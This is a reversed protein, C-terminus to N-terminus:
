GTRGSTRREAESERVQVELEEEAIGQEDVEEHEHDEAELAEPGGPPWRRESIKAGLAECIEDELREAEEQSLSHDDIQVSVRESDKYLRITARVLKSTGDDLTARFEGRWTAVSETEHTVGGSEAIRALKKAMWEEVGVGVGFSVAALVAICMICPM